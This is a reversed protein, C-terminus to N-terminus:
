RQRRASPYETHQRGDLLPVAIKNGQEDKSQKYFFPVGHEACQDRLLRVWGEKMPRTRSRPGTECGVIVWDIGEVLGNFFGNTCREGVGPESCMGCRKKPVAPEPIEGKYLPCEVMTLDIEDILPELSVGRVAAPTALLSPLRSDLAPQDEASVMMWVNQLPWEIDHQALEEAAENAAWSGFWQEMRLARKTLIQFTHIGALGMVVFADRIWEDLVKEHFLDSMSDVFVNSPKTWRLPDRLKEEILVVDGTWRWGGRVARVLGHYPQGPQNFRGAMREAYCNRCGESVRSCGRIFNWVRDTWEIKSKAM